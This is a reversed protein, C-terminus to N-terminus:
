SRKGHLAFVADIFRGHDSILVAVGERKIGLHKPKLVRELATRPDTGALVFINHVISAAPISGETQLQQFVRAEDDRNEEYLRKTIFALTSPNPRGDYADLTEAAERAVSESFHTRSKCEGKLVRPGRGTTDVGIIDNGHMPMQRDSKWRLKKVPVQFATEANVYETAILEALDGSQTRKFTPLSNIIVDAAKKYGGAKLVTAEGVFHDVLLPKLAKLGVARAGARERYLLIGKVRPSAAELWQNFLNNAV